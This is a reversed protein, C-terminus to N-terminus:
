GEWEIESLPLDVQKGDLWYAASSYRWDQPSRVLGKRCPNWHLYNVKQELFSESYIGEAHWGSQWFRRERDKLEDNKLVSSIASSYRFGVYDSLQRGSFKRFGTLARKLNLPDFAADFVIAHFHNPMIVYANVRLNKHAICYKLSDILTTIPTEDVFVPLWDVITFTIFYVGVGDVIRYRDM